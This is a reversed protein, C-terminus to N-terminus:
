MARASEPSLSSFSLLPFVTVLPNGTRSPSQAERSGKEPKGAVVSPAEEPHHSTQLGSLSLSAPGPAATVEASSQPRLDQLQSYTLPTIQSVSIPFFVDLLGPSWIVWLWRNSLSSCCSQNRPQDPTPCIGRLSCSDTCRPRSPLCWQRSM